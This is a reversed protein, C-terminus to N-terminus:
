GRYHGTGKFIVIPPLINLQESVTEVVMILEWNSDQITHPPRRGVRVIVKARNSLGLVFGKEDMNYVHVDQINFEKWISHLKQFYQKIPGPNSAFARQRDSNSAFHASVKSHCNLFGQLWTSRVMIAESEGMEENHSKVLETAMAKFMDLRAPFGQQNMYMAWCELADEISPSLTQQKQYASQRSRKGKERDSLTSCPIGFQLELEKYSTSEVARKALAQQIRAEKENIKDTRLKISPM